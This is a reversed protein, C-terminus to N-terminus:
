ENNFVLIKFVRLSVSLGALIDMFSNNLTSLLPLLLLCETGRDKMHINNESKNMHDMMKSVFYKKSISIQERNQALSGPSDHNFLTVLMLLLVDEETMDLSALLFNHNCPYKTCPVRGEVLM